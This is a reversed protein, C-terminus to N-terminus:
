KQENTSVKKNKKPLEIWEGIKGDWGNPSYVTFGSGPYFTIEGFYLKGNIEYFDIRAFPYDKSFLESFEVMKDFTQPKDPLKDFQPFDERYFPAQTWDMWMYSLHATSHDALGQSVYVFKPEGGFCFFKYDILEEGNECEMYQEAIIRPKLDKYPWERGEWFLNTMMKATLKRRAYEIDFNSKDKCLVVSGSDHTCKLVFKDPLAGFDIDEFKDWVGLFPILYEEGISSKIYERVEYKDVLKKYEPNRDYLKLWQLKENFTVPNKLNLRKGVLHKYRIKLFTKDSMWRLKDKVVLKQFLARSILAPNKIMNKLTEKRM